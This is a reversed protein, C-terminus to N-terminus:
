ARIRLEQDSAYQATERDLAKLVARASESWAVPRFDRRVRRGWELLGAQDEITDHIVRYADTTSDPDIYRALVGGAEPISTTNSAICPRGFALSETVPLGWGEYFSPYLTFLCGDYLLELESDTPNDFHVIKGGLFNSCRLQQMLDAVQWGVRGAFVLAPVADAPMEELLRRWVRFLLLHNKRVEITSVILAYSGPLPLQRSATDVSSQPLAAGKKFGSGIPIPTPHSRLPLCAQKAYATVDAATAASIALVTDAMPLASDLWKRFYTELGEDFWEPRRLPIIDYILVAFRLGKDRLAREVYTSYGDGWGCGFVALTDGPRATASFFDQPARLESQARQPAVAAYGTNVRESRVWTALKRALQARVLRAGALHTGVLHAAAAFVSLQLFVIHRLGPSLAYLLMRAIRKPASQRVQPSGDRPTESDREPPTEGDCISESLANVDEWPVVKLRRWEVDHRVFLVRDKGEPLAVIARYLEFQLRQFGSPRRGSQKWIFLDEVVIWIRGALITEGAIL